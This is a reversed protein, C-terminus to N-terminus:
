QLGNQIWRPNISERILKRVTQILEQSYNTTLLQSTVDSKITKLENKRKTWTEQKLKEPSFYATRYAIVCLSGDNRTVTVPFNTGFTRHFLVYDANNDLIHFYYSLPHVTGFRYYHEIHLSFVCDVLWMYNAKSYKGWDVLPHEFLPRRVFRLAGLDTQIRRIIRMGTSMYKPLDKDSLLQPMRVSSYDLIYYQEM